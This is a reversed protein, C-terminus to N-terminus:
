DWAGVLVFPAWYFPHRLPDGEGILHRQASRLAEVKTLSAEKSGPLLSSYFEKMLVRTSEDAVSWLSVIVSSAGAYIFSRTLGILEDGARRESIGSECASLTVLQARLELELIERATLDRDEIYRREKGAGDRYPALLVCSKLPENSDFRGHCALHLVDIAGPVAELAEKLATKTARDGLNPDSGFLDGVMRAEERADKLDGLSDGFVRATKLQGTGKNQCYRMMSSSPTYFVPNREILYRGDVKLAHLPLRHLDGHPVIWVIDDEASWRALPEILPGLQTQWDELDWDSHRELEEFVMRRWQWLDDQAVDVRHFKPADFDSRCVFLLVEDDTTFYEALVVRRKHTAEDNRTSTTQDTNEAEKLISRLTDYGLPFARRLTVYERGRAGTEAIEEHLRRLEDEAQAVDSGWDYKQPKAEAKHRAQLRRLTQSLTGEQELLQVPLGASGLNTGALQEAFVRSKAREVYDFAQKIAQADSELAGSSETRCLLAVMDAYPKEKPSLMSIKTSEPLYQSRLREITEICTQLTQACKTLHGGSRQVLALKHLARWRTEPTDYKEALTAAKSLFRSALELTGLDVHAEGIYLYHEAAHQTLNSVSTLLLSKELFSLAPGPKRDALLARGLELYVDSERDKSEGDGGDQRNLANLAEEYAEISATYSAGKVRAEERLANGLGTRSISAQTIRGLGQHLDAAERLAKKAPEYEGLEVYALGSNSRIRALEDRHEADPLSAEELAAEADSFWRLAEGYEGVRFYAMGLERRRTPGFMPPIKASAGRVYVNITNHYADIAEQWRGLFTCVFARGSWAEHELMLKEAPDAVHEVTDLVLDLLELAEDYFGEKRYAASQNGIEGLLGSEVGGTKVLREEVKRRQEAPSPPLEFREPLGTVSIRQGLLPAPLYRRVSRQTRQLEYGRGNYRFVYINFFQPGWRPNTEYVGSWIVVEDSGDADLDKMEVFGQHFREPPFLSHVLSGDWQLIRVSLFLGFDEQWLTVIEPIGDDNMDAVFLDRFGAEFPLLTRWEDGEARSPDYLALMAPGGYEPIGVVFCTEERGDGDVDHELRRLTRAKSVDHGWGRGRVERELAPRFRDAVEIAMRNELDDM